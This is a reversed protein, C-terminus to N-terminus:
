RKLKVSPKEAKTNGVEDTLKVTLKASV